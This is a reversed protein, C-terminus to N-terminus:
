SHPAIRGRGWAGERRTDPSSIIIIIIIIVVVVFMNAARLSLTQWEQTVVRNSV